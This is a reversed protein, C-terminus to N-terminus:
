GLEAEDVQVVEFGSFLDEEVSDGGVRNESGGTEVLTGSHNSNVSATRHKSDLHGVISNNGVDQLVETVDLKSQVQSGSCTKRTGLREERLLEVLRKGLTVVSCGNLNCSGRNLQSDWVCDGSELRQWCRRALRGWDQLVQNVQQISTSKVFVFSQLQHSRKQLLVSDLGKFLVELFIFQIVRFFETVKHFGEVCGQGQSDVVLRFHRGLHDGTESLQSLEVLDQWVTFLGVVMWVESNQNLVDQSDVWILGGLKNFNVQQMGWLNGIGNKSVGHERVIISWGNSSKTLFSTEVLSSQLVVFVDLVDLSDNNVGICQRNVPKHCVKSLQINFLRNCTQSFHQGLVQGLVQLNDDLNCQDNNAISEVKNMVQNQVKVLVLEELENLNINLLDVWGLGCLNNCSQKINVTVLTHDLREQLGNKSLNWNGLKTLLHFLSVSELDQQREQLSSQLRTGCVLGDVVSKGLDVNVGVVVWLFEQKLVVLVVSLPKLSSSNILMVFSFAMYLYWALYRSLLDSRARQPLTNDSSLMWRLCNTSWTTPVATGSSSSGCGTEMATFANMSFSRGPSNVSSNSFIMKSGDGNLSLGDNCANNIVLKLSVGVGHLNQNFIDHRKVSTLVVGLLKLLRFQPRLKTGSLQVTQSNWLSDVRIQLSTVRGVKLLDNIDSLMSTLLFLKNWVQQHSSLSESLWLNVLGDDVSVSRKALQALDLLEQLQGVNSVQFRNTVLQVGVLVVISGLQDVGIYGVVGLKSGGQNVQLVVLRSNVTSSLSGINGNPFLDVLSTNFVLLELKCLHTTQVQNNM